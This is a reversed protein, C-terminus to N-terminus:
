HSTLGAVYAKHLRASVTQDSKPKQTTASDKEICYEACCLQTLPEHALAERVLQPPQVRVLYLYEEEELLDTSDAKQSGIYKLLASVAKDIQERKLGPAKNSAM